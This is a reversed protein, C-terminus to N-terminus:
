RATTQPDAGACQAGRQGRQEQNRHGFRGDFISPHWQCATAWALPSAEVGAERRGPSPTGGQRNRVRQARVVTHHDDFVLMVTDEHSNGTAHFHIFVNTQFHPPWCPPDLMALSALCRHRRCGMWSPKRSSQGRMRFSKGEIVVTDAHHLLRDLIAATLTSDNNFMKPWEKFARNSTIM